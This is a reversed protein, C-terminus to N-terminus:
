LDELEPGAILMRPGRRRAERQAIRLLMGHLRTLAADRGPGGGLVRLWEASEPDLRAPIETVVRSAPIM